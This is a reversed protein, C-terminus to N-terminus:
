DESDTAFRATTKLGNLTGEAGEQEYSVIALFSKGGKLIVKVGIAQAPKGDATKVPIAQISETQMSLFTVFVMDLVRRVLLQGVLEVEYCRAFFWQAGLFLALWFVLGMLGFLLLAAAHTRESSRPANIAQRWKPSLVHLLGTM